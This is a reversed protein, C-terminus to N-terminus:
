CQKKDENAIENNFKDITARIVPDNDEQITSQETSGIINPEDMTNTRYDPVNYANERNYESGQQNIKDKM